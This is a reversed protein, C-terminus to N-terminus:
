KQASMLKGIPNGVIGKELDFVVNGRVITKTVRCDIKRGEYASHKNKYYLDERKVVYSQNPDVLIIDADKSVAIEGKNPLNFRKAPNSAILDVFKEVALGRQKVALDFMLDVNNQIGSIGGWAEWLNGQKLDETCPSHDSTLWDINGSLLEDWLKAQDVAKRIPPQCKARPGIEDVQEATMAFYHPCSEVTVDVGEARAKLITQIAESTSIHVLHLKCGTDKAFLIARSVAEVETVIPRSEAYEVGSNKGERAFEKSLGSTVSANEAHICLIQDLEALKQMGKYLTYDDVNTFDGPIDSTIDSLFCKFALVGADALEQLKDLNEPVLGGYFAYDVYNQNVAAELKLDLAEKNITAPLANLPMEVYSTTGGAAMAKSGTEFGEWETRGPESIHVHTDVMGPMVYQGNADIIEKADETISDAICSIKEDKVGIDAKRVGDHFVVNGGKIILDYKM